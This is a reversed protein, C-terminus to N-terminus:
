RMLTFHVDALIAVYLLVLRVEEKIKVIAGNRARLVIHGSCEIKYGYLVRFHIYFELCALLGPWLSAKRRIREMPLM